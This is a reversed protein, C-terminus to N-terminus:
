RAPNTYSFPFRGPGTAPRPELGLQTVKLKGEGAECGPVILFASGSQLVIWAPASM